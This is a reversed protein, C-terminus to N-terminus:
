KNILTYYNSICKNRCDWIDIVKGSIIVTLHRACRVVIIKSNNILDIEGITYKTNDVKRPQKHKIFSYKELLKDEVRKENLMYGTKLSIEFLEKYIDEYKKNTAVTLARVVCDGTKRKKPNVNKNEFGIM